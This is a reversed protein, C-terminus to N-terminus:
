SNRPASSPEPDDCAFHMVEVRIRTTDDEAHGEWSHYFSPVRAPVGARDEPKHYVCIAMRPRFEKLTRAAGALAEQEAGEIDMKIFDVSPLGLEEVIADITTVSVTIENGRPAADRAVRGTWSLAPEVNFKLLEQKKWVGQQVAIVRGEAIEKAFTRELCAFTRPAPEFAIVRSAGRNLATRTFAGYNAGCDLVTDGARVGCDPGGYVDTKQESLMHFVAGM